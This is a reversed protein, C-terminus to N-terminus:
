FTFKMLAQVRNNTVWHLNDEALGNKGILKIGDLNKYDGYQVSTLEYEIGLAFKGINRIITPTLRWMRNM